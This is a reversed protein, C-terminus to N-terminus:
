TPRMTQALLVHYGYRVAWHSPCTPCYKRRFTEISTWGPSTKSDKNMCPNLQLRHYLAIWPLIHAKRYAFIKFVAHLCRLQPCPNFNSLMTVKILVAIHGLKCSWQLIRILKIDELLESIDLVLCYDLNM